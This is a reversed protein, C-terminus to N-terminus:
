FKKNTFKPNGSSRRIVYVALYAGGSVLALALISVTVLIGGNEDASFMGTDPVLIDSKGQQERYAELNIELRYNHKSQDSGAEIMAETAPSGTYELQVYDQFNLVNADIVICYADGGACGEGTGGYFAAGPTTIKSDTGLGSMVTMPIFMGSTGGNTSSGAYYSSGNSTQVAVFNTRVLVNDDLYLSLLSDTIKSVDLSTFDNGYLYAQTLKSNASLDIGTLHNNSAYLSELNTNHSVDLSTLANHHIWLNKLSAVGDLEVSTLKDNNNINLDSLGSQQGLKVSTLKSNNNVSLNTIGPNHSFDLATLNTQKSINVNKLGTLLEIGTTNNIQYSNDCSLLAIGKAQAETISTASTDTIGAAQKVCSFFGSDPFETSTYTTDAFTDSATIGGFLSVAVVGIMGLLKGNKYKQM